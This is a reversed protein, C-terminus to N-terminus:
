GWYMRKLCKELADVVVGDIMGADDGRHDAEVHRRHYMNALFWGPKQFSPLQHAPSFVSWRRDETPEKSSRPFWNVALEGGRRRGRVWPRVKPMRSEYALDAWVTRGKPDTEGAGAPILQDLLDRM